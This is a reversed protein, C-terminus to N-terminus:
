RTGGSSWSGKEWQRMPFPSLVCRDLNSIEHVHLKAERVNSARSVMPQQAASTDTATDPKMVNLASRQYAHRAIFHQYPKVWGRFIGRTPHSTCHQM